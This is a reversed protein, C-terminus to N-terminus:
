AVAYTDAGRRLPVVGAHFERQRQRQWPVLLRDRHGSMDHAVGHLLDAHLLGADIVDLQGQALGAGVHQQVGAGTVLVEDAEVQLVPEPHDPDDVDAV